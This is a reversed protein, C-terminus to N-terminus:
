RHEFVKYRLLNAKFIITTISLYQEDQIIELGKRTEYFHEVNEFQLPDQRDTVWVRIETM